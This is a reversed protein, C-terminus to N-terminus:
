GSASAAASIARQFACVPSASGTVRWSVAACWGIIAVRAGAAPRARAAHRSARPMSGAGVTHVATTRRRGVSATASAIAWAARSGLPSNPSRAAVSAGVSSASM